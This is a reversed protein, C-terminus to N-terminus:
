TQQYHTAAIRCEECVFAYYIGEGYEQFDPCDIQGVFKMHKSCEPCIPYEADQIWTPHGGVQSGSVELV